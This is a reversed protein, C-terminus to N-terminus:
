ARGALRGQTRDDRSQGPALAIGPEIGLRDALNGEIPFRHARLVAGKFAVELAAGRFDVQMFHRAALEGIELFLRARQPQFSAPM